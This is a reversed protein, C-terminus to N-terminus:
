IKLLGRAMAIEGDPHVIKQYATPSICIPMSIKDGLISTDITCHSVDRLVRPLLRLRRICVKCRYLVAYVVCTPDNICYACVPVVCISM